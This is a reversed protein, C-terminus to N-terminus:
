KGSEITPAAPALKKISDLKDKLAVIRVNTAKNDKYGEVLAKFVLVTFALSAGIPIVLLPCGPNRECCDLIGWVNWVEAGALVGACVKNIFKQNELHSIENKIDEPTENQSANLFSFAESKFHYQDSSSADIKSQLNQFEAMSIRSATLCFITLVLFLRKM